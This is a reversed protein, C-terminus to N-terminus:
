IRVRQFPTEEKTKLMKISTKMRRRRIYESLFFIFLNNILAIKNDPLFYRLIFFTRQQKTIRSISLKFQSNFFQRYIKCKIIKVRNM